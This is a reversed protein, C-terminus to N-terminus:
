RDDSLDCEQQRDSSFLLFGLGAAAERADVSETYRDCTKCPLPRFTLAAWLANLVRRPWLRETAYQLQEMVAAMLGLAMVAGVANSLTM